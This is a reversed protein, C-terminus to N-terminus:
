ETMDICRIYGGKAAIARVNRDLEVGSLEHALFKWLCKIIGKLILLDNCVGVGCWGLDSSSGCDSFDCGLFLSTGGFSNIDGPASSVLFGGDFNVVACGEGCM